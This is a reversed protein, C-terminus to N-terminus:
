SAAIDDRFIWLTDEMLEMIAENISGFLMQTVNLISRTIESSIFERLSKDIPEFGTDLGSRSGSYGSGHHTTVM